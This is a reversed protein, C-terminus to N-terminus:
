ESKGEKERNWPECKGAAAALEVVLKAVGIM